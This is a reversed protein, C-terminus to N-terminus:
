DVTAAAPHPLHRADHDEHNEQSTPASLLTSIARAARVATITGTLTANCALPTPIVGTGAVFLNDVGWIRGEPDCVSTGDDVPGSRVTGTLHLSSGPPLIALETAPDLEGFESAIDTMEEVARGILARDADSYDFQFRVRPLGFLDTETSSFSLRNERRSEVPVYLSVGVSYALAHDDDDVFVTNMIQGHFPQGAGNQPLWLSDTAFEAERVRPLAELSLGFRDLDMLVRGTIFAHENLYRGVADSGLGSAFLLQPTRVADACVVVVNALIEREAGTDVDRVVAGRTVGEDVILSTVLTRPLLTFEADDGTGLPPFIVSPGTRRIRGLPSPDVAMPMPQPERGPDSVTEYRRHLVDLVIQGPETPGIGARVVGLLDRATALDADWQAHDGFDFVEDGEPWPTAATWHVGMGGVNWALAVAPMAESEEGLALGHFMGSALTQADS